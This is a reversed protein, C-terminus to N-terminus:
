KKGGKSKIPTTGLQRFGLVISDDVWVEGYIRVISAGDEVYPINAKAPEQVPPKPRMAYAVLAAVIIVVIYWIAQIWAHVPKGPPPLPAPHLWVWLVWAVAGTVIVMALAFAAGPMRATGDERYLLRALVLRAYKLRWMLSPARATTLATM